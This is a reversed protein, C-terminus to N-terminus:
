LPYHISPHPIISIAPYIIIPPAHHIDSLRIPITPYPDITPYSPHIPISPHVSFSPYPYISPHIPISPHPHISPHVFPHIPPPYPISSLSIRPYIHLLLLRNICVQPSFVHNVKISIKICVRFIYDLFFICVRCKGMCFGSKM